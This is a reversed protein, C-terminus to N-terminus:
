RCSKAMRDYLVVNVTAALNSCRNMPIYVTHSCWSIINEDLTGDEPGFIYFAREPHTFEPLPTAGDILDVAVPVCGYPIISKIDDVMIVPKHRYTKFTDTPHALVTEARTGSLAIFSADYCSAARCVGGVNEPTKSNVLGIASYGRM